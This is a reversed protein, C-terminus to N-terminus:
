PLGDRGFPERRPGLRGLIFGVLVVIGLGLAWPLISAGKSKLTISRLKSPEAQPPPAASSPADAGPAPAQADPTVFAVDGQASASSEGMTMCAAEPVDYGGAVMVHGRLGDPAAIQLETRASGTFPTALYGGAPVHILVEEPIAVEAGDPGYARLRVHLDADDSCVADALTVRVFVPLSAAGDVMQAGRPTVIELSAGSAQARVLPVWAVAVLAVALLLTARRM